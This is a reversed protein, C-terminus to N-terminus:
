NNRLNHKQLEIEAIEGSRLDINKVDPYKPVFLVFVIAIVFLISFQWLGQKM